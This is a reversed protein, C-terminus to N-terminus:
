SKGPEPESSQAAKKGKPSRPLLAKFEKAEPMGMFTMTAAAVIKEMLREASAQTAKRLRVAQKSDVKKAEQAADAALLADLTAKM